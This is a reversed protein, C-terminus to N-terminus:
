EDVSSETKREFYEYYISKCITEILQDLTKENIKKKIEYKEDWKITQINNLKVYSKKHLKTHEIPFLNSFGVSTSSTIPLVLWNYPIGANNRFVKVCIYPRRKDGEPIFILNGETAYDLEM